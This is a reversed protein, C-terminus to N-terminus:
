WYARGLLGYQMHVCVWIGPGIFQFKQMKRFPNQQLGVSHVISLGSRTGLDQVGM